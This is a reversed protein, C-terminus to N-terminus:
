ERGFDVYSASAEDARLEANERFEAAIDARELQSPDAIIRSNRSLATLVTKRIRRGSLGESLEILNEGEDIDMGLSTGFANDLHEFVDRFIAVRHEPTPNGIYLQDDTRDYFANDVADPHNSTGIVFVNPVEAIQDILELSLNVARVLDFPDTEGTLMSRNSFLSEVEDVLVVQFVDKQEATRIVSKFAAEVLKPTDGLGSSFLRQVEIQTFVVPIDLWRALENAAGKALSTKGTGPPGALLVTGHHAVTMRDLGSTDVTREFRGFNLLKQKIGEDVYIRSWYKDWDDDPLERTRVTDELSEPEQRVDPPIPM